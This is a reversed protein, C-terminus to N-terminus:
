PESKVYNPIDVPERQEPTPEHIPPPQPEVRDAAEAIALVEASLLLKNAEDNLMGALAKVSRGDRRTAHALRLAGIPVPRTLEVAVRVVRFPADLAEALRGAVLASPPGAHQHAPHWPGRTWQTAQFREDDLQRFFPDDAM